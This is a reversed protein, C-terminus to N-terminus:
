INTFNDDLTKFIDDLAEYAKEITNDMNLPEISQSSSHNNYFNTLAEIIKDENEFSININTEDLNSPINNNINFLEINTKNHTTFEM